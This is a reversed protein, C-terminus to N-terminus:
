ILIYLLNNKFSKYELLFRIVSIYDRYYIIYKVNILNNIVLKSRYILNM